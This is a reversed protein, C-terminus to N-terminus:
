LAEYGPREREGSEVVHDCVPQSRRGRPRRQSADHVGGPAVREERELNRARQCAVRAVMPKAVGEGYWLAELLEHEGAQSRERSGCM